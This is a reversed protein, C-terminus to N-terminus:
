GKKSKRAIVATAVEKAPNALGSESRGGPAPVSAPGEGPKGRGVQTAVTQESGDAGANGGGMPKFGAGSTLSVGVIKSGDETKTVGLVVDAASLIADNHTVVIFQARASMQKVFDALKRANEKDLAAEAEDLIYFPAPKHMQLAFIFMLAILTMEGGSMSNLYRDRKDHQGRVRIQMGSELPNSADDLVLAGEGPYVMSFLRQFHENVVKFTDLFITRKKREIEEMLAMVAGRESELTAVRGAVEDLEKKRQEYMEPAKENVSGLERLRAESSKVTEELTARPADMLPIGAHKEWEAKLDVLRTSSAAQKVEVEHAERGKADAAAKLKGEQGGLEDLEGQLQQMQNYFKEVTSSVEKLRSELKGLNEQGGAQAKAMGALELEVAKAASKGKGLLAALEAAQARVMEVEHAKAKWASELDAAKQLSIRYQEQAAGSKERTKKVAEEHAARAASLREELKKEEGSVQALKKRLAAMEGECAKAEDLARKEEEKAKQMRVKREAAGGAQAELTRAKVEAEARERRLKQMQERVEYLQAYLADREGKVREMEREARDLSSKAMLSGRLSGGTIIGSRELLEGDMTVMRWSGLGIKKAAAVDNVLLTDEFVYRMASDLGRDYEVFDILRGLSGAPAAGKGGDGDAGGRMPRDLPIFTCRGAKAEKLKSIIGSATDLADVVVYLLRGGASAEVATRYENDVVILDSVTGYIGKAGEKKLTQVMLLAANQAAPSVSGRLAALREKEELLKKDLAPINKNLNREKEFLADLDATLSKIQGNLRDLKEDDAGGAGDLSEMESKARAADASYKSLMQELSQARATGAAREQQLAGLEKQLAEAERDVAAGEEMVGAKQKAMDLELAAAAHAEKAKELERDMEAIAKAMRGKQAEQEKAEAELRAAEKKKEEMRATLGALEVQTSQIQAMLSEREGSKGIKAALAARQEDLQRHRSGLVKQQESLGALEEALAKQKKLLEEFHSNIKEYEAHVLSARARNLSTRAEASALAADREKELEALYTGREAMVIKADSIKSEVKGLESLAEKKKDEFEAIGAAQDIIGRREKASMQVIHQVQGQGVINHTGVELGYPRLAELVQVRTLHRGDLHYSTKAEDNIARRVEMSAGEKPGGDLYLTVEAKTSNLNILEAVKKARLSKLSMEGLCFRIADTVNSKGSGNPGALAIFGRPLQVESSRFSKFGRFRIRSIFYPTGGPAKAQKDNEVTM